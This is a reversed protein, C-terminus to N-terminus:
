ELNRKEFSKIIRLALNKKYFFSKDNNIAKDILRNILQSISTNEIKSLLILDNLLRKKITITKIIYTKKKQDM